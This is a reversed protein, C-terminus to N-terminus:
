VPGSRDVTSLAVLIRDLESAIIPKSLFDDMGAQRCDHRDKDFAQATLAVIRCPRRKLELELERIRRSAELGGMLPMELDMLILDFETSRSLMVAETGDTVCNVSVGREQLLLRVVTQGILNDEALLVKLNLYVATPVACNQSTAVKQAFANWLSLTSLPAAVYTIAPHQLTLGSNPLVVVRNGPRLAGLLNPLAEKDDPDLSSADLLWFDAGQGAAADLINLELRTLADKVFDWIPSDARILVCCQSSFGFVQKPELRGQPDLMPLSVECTTGVNETSSVKLHGGMLEVLKACISLGLGTGGFRRHVTADAQTFPQLVESLRSSPIGCGTDIVQVVLSADICQATLRLSGSSTFKVANSVLNLLVQLLRPGDGTLRAPLEGLQVSLSINRESLRSLFPAVAQPVLESVSYAQEDVEIEGAEAKSFDLIDNLITMLNDASQHALNAYEVQQATLGSTNLLHALMGLVGNMPTRIEHSMRALFESKSESAKLASEYAQRYAEARISLQHELTELRGRVQVALIRIVAFGTLTVLAFSLLLSSEFTTTAEGLSREREALLREENSSMEAIISRIEYGLTPSEDDVLLAHQDTRSGSNPKTMQTELLRKKEKLLLKLRECQRIDKPQSVLGRLRGLTTDSESFRSDDLLEIRGTLLYARQAAEQAYLSSELRQLLSKVQWGREALRRQVNVQDFLVLTFLAFIAQIILILLVGMQVVQTLAKGGTHSLNDVPPKQM